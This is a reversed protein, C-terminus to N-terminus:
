QRFNLKIGLEVIKTQIHLIASTMLPATETENGEDIRAILGGELVFDPLKITENLSSSFPDEEFETLKFRLGALENELLWSCLEKKFGKSGM